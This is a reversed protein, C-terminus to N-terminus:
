VVSKRDSETREDVAKGRELLIPCIGARALTLAAFLGAPGAGVVVPPQAFAAHPLAPPKPFAYPVAVEPRLHSLVQQENQVTVAVSIVFHVNAKDRADVAKKLLTVTKLHAPTCRLKKVILARLSEDTYDLPLNLSDLRLM